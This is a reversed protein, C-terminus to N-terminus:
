LLKSLLFTKHKANSFALMVENKETNRYLTYSKYVGLLSEITEVIEAVNVTLNNNYCYRQLESLNKNFEKLKTFHSLSIAYEPDINLDHDVPILKNRTLKFTGEFDIENPNDYIIMSKDSITTLFEKHATTYLINKNKQLTKFSKLVDKNVSEIIIDNM